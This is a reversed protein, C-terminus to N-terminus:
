DCATFWYNHIVCDHRQIIGHRSSATWLSEKEYFVIFLKEM